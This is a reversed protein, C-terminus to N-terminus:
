RVYLGIIPHALNMTNWWGFNQATGGHHRSSIKSVSVNTPFRFTLCIRLHSIMSIDQVTLIIHVNIKM